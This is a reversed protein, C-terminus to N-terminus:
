QPRSASTQRALLEGQRGRENGVAYAAEADLM